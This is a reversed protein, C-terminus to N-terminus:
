FAVPWAAPSGERWCSNTVHKARRRDLGKRRVVISAQRDEQIPTGTAAVALEAWGPSKDCPEEAVYRLDQKGFRGKVGIGSPVPNPLM